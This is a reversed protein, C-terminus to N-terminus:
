YAVVVELANTGSAGGPAGPDAIVAQLQITAPTLHSPLTTPIQLTGTALPIPVVWGPLLPAITVSCAGTIPVPLSGFGALLFAVSGAPAGAIRITIDRGPSACGLGGLTPVVGGTGACGLGKKTFSGGCLDFGTLFGNAFEATSDYAGPSIPFDPSYTRGAIVVRGDHPHSVVAVGYDLDIGGLLTSYLLDSGTPDLKSLYIDPSLIVSSQFAGPTTPFPGFTQSSFTYGTLLVCGAPDLAVGPGRDHDVGGLFTSFELSSGDASMKTVFSDIGGNFTTDYAGPTTPYNGNFVEGAVVARGEPDITQHYPRQDGWEGLFTAWDIAMTGAHLRAVFVDIKHGFVPDFSGPTAPFGPDGTEGSLIVNGQSDLDLGFVDTGGNNGGFYSSYEFVTGSPNIITLFGVGGLNAVLSPFQANPTVPFSASNTYGSLYFRGQDDVASVRSTDIGALGGLYTSYVLSAGDPSLKFAFCEGFDQVLDPGIHDPAGPTLPYDVSSTGGSVYSAGLADVSFALASESHSGGVFTGFLVTTADADTRLVCADGFGNPTPDYSGPTSPFTATGITLGLHLVEDRVVVVPDGFNDLFTSWELSPDVVTRGTTGARFRFTSEDFWESVAAVENRGGGMAEAYVHARHHTLRDQGVRLQFGGGPELAELEAGRVRIRVSGVDAGVGGELDYELGGATVRFVVDVGPSVGVLRVAGFGPVDRRWKSPDRGILFNWRGPRADEGVVSPHGSGVFDLFVSSGGPMSLRLGGDTVFATAGRHLLRYRAEEPWQGRNELFVATLQGISAQTLEPAGDVPVCLESLLLWSTVSMSIM